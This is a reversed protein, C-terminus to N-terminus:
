RKKCCTWIRASPSSFLWAVAVQREGAFREPRSLAEVARQDTTKGDDSMAAREEYADNRDNIEQILAEVETLLQHVQM